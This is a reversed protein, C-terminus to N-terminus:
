AGKTQKRAITAAVQALNIPKLNNSSARHFRTDTIGYKNCIMAAEGNTVFTVPVTNHLETLIRIANAKETKTMDTTGKTTTTFIVATM